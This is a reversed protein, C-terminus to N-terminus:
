SVFVRYKEKGELELIIRKVVITKPDPMLKVRSRIDEFSEFPKEKRAELVEWMHKKGMGPLLELQHMRMSLPQATNFFAIFRKEDKSVLEEVVPGLEARATSTLKEYMIRGKIHHIEDRKGDGIYVEQHAKVFVGRKPILELLSLHGIGIAQVISINAEGDLPYGHELYDLVIAREERIQPQMNM